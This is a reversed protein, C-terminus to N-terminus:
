LETAKGTFIALQKPTSSNQLIPLLSLGFKLTLQDKENSWGEVVGDSWCVAALPFSYPLRRV